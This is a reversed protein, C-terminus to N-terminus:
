LLDILEKEEWQRLYELLPGRSVGVREKLAPVPLYKPAIPLYDM